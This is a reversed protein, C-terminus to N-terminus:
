RVRVMSILEGSAEIVVGGSSVFDLIVASRPQWDDFFIFGLRRDYPPNMPCCRLATGTPPVPVAMTM